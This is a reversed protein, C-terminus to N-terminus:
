GARKARRRLTEGRVGLRAGIERWFMGRERLIAILPARDGGQLVVWLAHNEAEARLARILIAARGTM